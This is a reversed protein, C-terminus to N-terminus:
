IRYIETGPTSLQYRVFFYRRPVFNKTAFRMLSHRISMLYRQGLPPGELFSRGKAIVPAKLSAGDKQDSPDLCSEGSGSSSDTAEPRRDSPRSGADSSTTKADDEAGGQPLLDVNMDQTFTPTGHVGALKAKKTAATAM